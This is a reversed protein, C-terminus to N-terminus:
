PNQPSIGIPRGWPSATPLRSRVGTYFHHLISDSRAFTFYVDLLLRTLDLLLSTFDLLTRTLDLLLRTLDCREAWSPPLQGKEQCSRKYATNKLWTTLQKKSYKPVLEADLLAENVMKVM